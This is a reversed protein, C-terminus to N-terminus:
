SAAASSWRQRMPMAPQPRREGWGAVSSSLAAPALRRMTGVAAAGM